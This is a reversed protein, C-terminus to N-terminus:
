SSITGRGRPGSGANVSLFLMMWHPTPTPPRPGPTPDTRPTIPDKTRAYFYLNQADRAVKLLVFDNRGTANVYRTFNNYAPHDRRATDGIDDRYEPQVADWQRFSGDLRITKPPSAAIPKRVGKYRRINAVMQYYYDDSHGGRMPEIDRSNAQNFTDVFMVPAKVGLFENYRAAFWENWGTIFIFKPDEKLAREWQEQANYGHLVADPSPDNAGNHYSRGRAGPQSLTALRNGVANQAAGVSMQEKEGKANRFVHQPFVELWSWQNPGTPGQFYDAQPKRFTFFNRLAEDPGGVTAIRLTRDGQAPAGDAFAQGGAFVDGTHSWWGIRGKPQSAELYYVGPPLTKGAALSVWDNDAVDDFQKRALLVGVPGGRRLSLTVGAGHTAWNPFRGGVADFPRAATFSQGLTHGEALPVPTNQAQNGEGGAILAPDALILPKGEWRFWLDRYLGPGYLDAYLERVVKEPTWFPTLFAVQPTKGGVARVESFVKLLAMYSSKYTFQNTVDFIIVDVGADSLMQAHKRLIYEDDSLYYGFLSEGWHHNAGLPGWLPSDPKRMADPDAQLIKSIDYPGGNVHAGHWLFYFLGVTRDKRPPGVQEYGPLVRGLADTAVWTDAATDWHPASHKQGAVAQGKARGDAGGLVLAPVAFWWIM